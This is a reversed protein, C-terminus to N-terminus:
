IQANKSHRLDILGGHEAVRRRKMEYSSFDIPMEAKRIERGTVGPVAGVAHAREMVEGGKRLEAFITSGLSNRNSADDLERHGSRRSGGSLFVPLM